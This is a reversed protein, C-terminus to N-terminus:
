TTILTSGCSHELFSDSSFAYSFLFIMGWLGVFEPEVLGACTPFYLFFYRFELDLLGGKLEKDRSM